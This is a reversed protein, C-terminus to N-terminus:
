LINLMTVYNGRNRRGGLWKSNEGRGKEQGSYGEQRSYRGRRGGEMRNERPGMGRKGKHSMVSIKVASELYSSGELSILFAQTIPLEFFIALLLSM